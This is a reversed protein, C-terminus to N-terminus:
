VVEIITTKEISGQGYLRQCHGNKDSCTITVTITSIGKNSILLSILWKSSEYSPILETQHGASTQIFKLEFQEGNTLLTGDPETMTIYHHSKVGVSIRKMTDPFEVTIGNWTYNITQPAPTATPIPTANITINQTINTQNTMNIEPMSTITPEPTTVNEPTPTKEPTPEPTIEPIPKPEPAKERTVISYTIGFIILVAFIIGVIKYIKITAALEAKDTM